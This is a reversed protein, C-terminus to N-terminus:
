RKNMVPRRPLNARITAGEELIKTMEKAQLLMAHLERLSLGVDIRQAQMWGRTLRQFCLFTDIKVCIETIETQVSFVSAFRRTGWSDESSVKARLAECVFLM